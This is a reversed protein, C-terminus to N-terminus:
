PTASIPTLSISGTMDGRGDVGYDTITVQCIYSGLSGRATITRGDASLVVETIHLTRLDRGDIRCAESLRVRHTSGPQDRLKKLAPGEWCGGQHPEIISPRSMWSDSHAKTIGSAAMSRPAHPRTRRGGTLYALNGTAQM